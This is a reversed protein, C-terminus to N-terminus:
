SNKSDYVTKSQRNEGEVFIPIERNIANISADVTLNNSSGFSKNDDGPSM